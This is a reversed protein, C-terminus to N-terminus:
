VSASSGVAPISTMVDGAGLRAPSPAPWQKVSVIM